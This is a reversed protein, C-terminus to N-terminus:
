RPPMRCSSPLAPHASIPAAPVGDNGVVGIQEVLEAQVVGREERVQVLNYAGIKDLTARHARERMEPTLARGRSALYEEMDM